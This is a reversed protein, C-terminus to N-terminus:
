LIANLALKALALVVLLIVLIILLPKFGTMAPKESKQEAM